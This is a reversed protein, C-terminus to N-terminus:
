QGGACPPLPPLLLFYVHFLTAVISRERAQRHKRFSRFSFYFLTQTCALTQEFNFVLHFDITKVFLTPFFERYQKTPTKLLAIIGSASTPYSIIIALEASRASTSYNNFSGDILRSCNGKFWKKRFNRGLIALLDTKRCIAITLLYLHVVSSTKSFYSNLLCCKFLLSFPLQCVM